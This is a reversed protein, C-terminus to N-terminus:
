AHFEYILLTLVPLGVTLLRPITSYHMNFILIAVAIAYNSIGQKPAILFAKM